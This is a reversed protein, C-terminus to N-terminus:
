GDSNTAEDLLNWFAIEPPAVLFDAAREIFKRIYPTQMHEGLYFDKDSWNEYLMFRTSDAPDQYLNIGICASESVVSTILSVLDKKTVEEMGPKARYHILVTIPNKPM